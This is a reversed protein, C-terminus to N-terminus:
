KRTGGSAFVRKKEGSGYAAGGRGGLSTRVRTRNKNEEMPRKHGKKKRIVFGEGERGPKKKARRDLLADATGCRRRGRAGEGEIRVAVQFDKDGETQNKSTTCRPSGRM